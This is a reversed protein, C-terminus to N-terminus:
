NCNLSSVDLHLCEVVCSDETCSKLTLVVPYPIGETVVFSARDKKLGSLPLEPTFRLESGIQYQLYARDRKTDIKSVAVNLNEDCSAIPDKKLPLTLSIPSLTVQVKTELARCQQLKEAEFSETLLEVRELCPDDQDVRLDPPTTTGQDLSEKNTNCGILFTSMCLIICFTKM